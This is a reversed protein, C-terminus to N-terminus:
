AKRSKLFEIFAIDEPVTIKPNPYLNEVVTVKIGAIQAAAVDDTIKIKNKRVYAYASIIDAARFVQPTQMAWLHSRDLDALKARVPVSPSSSRKVTDTVRVALVAAGDRLAAAALLAVNEAGVLPRAGDHIFALQSIDSVEALGNLVSDQREAGGKSFKVSFRKEINPFHKKLGAKVARKQSDDRCVFIIEGVLGSEIFAKFSHLLVPLGCLQELVKDKVAGRMRSGGGGALLIAANPYRTDTKM